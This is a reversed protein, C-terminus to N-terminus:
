LHRMRGIRSDFRGNLMLTPAKVRLAFNLQDAEPFRKQLYFGPSILILAKLRTEVAPLIAGM